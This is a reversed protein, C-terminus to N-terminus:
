KVGRKGELAKKPGPSVHARALAEGVAEPSAGFGLLLARTGNLSLRDLDLLSEAHRAQKHLQLVGQLLGFLCITREAVDGEPLLGQSEAEGLAESLPTLAAIMRAIVASASEPERLLIKPEAMSMALLGFSHPEDRAFARYGQVLAFVRALPGSGKPLRAVARDLTARVELLAGEIITSLLAEKSGIYRYLAGPTFGTAEALRSMSLGDFGGETVLQMAAEIVRRETDEHRLARPTKPKAPSLM